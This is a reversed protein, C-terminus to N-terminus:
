GKLCIITQIAAPSAGLHLVSFGSFVNRKMIFQCMYFQWLIFTWICHRKYTIFRFGFFELILILESHLGSHFYVRVLYYLCSSYHWALHDKLAVIWIQRKVSVTRGERSLSFLRLTDPPITCLSLQPVYLWVTVPVHCQHHCLWWALSQGLWQFCNRNM